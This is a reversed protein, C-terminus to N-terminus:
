HNSAYIRRFFFMSRHKARDNHRDTPSIGMDSNGSLWGLVTESKWPRNPFFHRDIFSSVERCKDHTSAQKQLPRSKFGWLAPKTFCFPMSSSTFPCSKNRPVQRCAFRRIHPSPHLTTTPRQETEGRLWAPAQPFHAIYGHWFFFYVPVVGSPM